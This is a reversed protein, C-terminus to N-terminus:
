LQVTVTTPSVTCLYQLSGVKAFIYTWVIMNTYPQMSKTDAHQCNTYPLLGRPLNVFAAM